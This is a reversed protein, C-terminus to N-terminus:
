SKSGVVYTYENPADRGFHEPGVKESQVTKGSCKAELGLYEILALLLKMEESM